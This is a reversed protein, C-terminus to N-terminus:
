VGDAPFRVTLADGAGLIVFRDDIETLLPLVEGYRTYMGPHQNWRPFAAKRDWDFWDLSHEGELFIPESFGREWLEAHAPEVSTTRLEADDGDVALRISDWYLRLTSFTRMRPDDRNVLDTVDVVM